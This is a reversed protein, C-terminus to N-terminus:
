LLIFSLLFIAVAIVWEMGNCHIRENMEANAEIMLWNMKMEHFPLFHISSHYYYLLLEPLLHFVIFRLSSRLSTTQIAKRMGKVEICNMCDIAAAWARSISQNSNISAIRCAFLFKISHFYNIIPIFNFSTAGAAAVPSIWEMRKNWKAEKWKKRGSGCTMRMEDWSLTARANAAGILHIFHFPNLAPPFFRICKVWNTAEREMWDIREKM